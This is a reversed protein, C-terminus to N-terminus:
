ILRYSCTPAASLRNWCDWLILRRKHNQVFVTNAVVPGRCVPCVGRIWEPKPEGSAPGLGPRFAAHPRRRRQHLAPHTRSM